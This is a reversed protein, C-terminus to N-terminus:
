CSRFRPLLLISHRDKDHVRFRRGDNGENWPFEKTGPGFPDNGTNCFTHWYATAFRFHDQMTKGAIVKGADYWKFALPNNSDKGEYKIQGIGQFYERDGLTLNLKM